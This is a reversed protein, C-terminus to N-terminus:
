ANSKLGKQGIRHREGEENNLFRKIANMFAQNLSAHLLVSRIRAQLIILVSHLNGSVNKEERSRKEYRSREEKMYLSSIKTQLNDHCSTTETKM